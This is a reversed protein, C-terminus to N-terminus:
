HGIILQEWAKLYNHLAYRTQYLRLGNRAFNIRTEPTKLAYVAQVVEAASCSNLFVATGQDLTTPIEGARSAIISIGSALAELLVIPQAEVKYSSPFVLIQAQRLADLKEAGGIGRVWKVHVTPSLNIEAIKEVVWKEADEESHFRVPFTDRIFGGALLADVRLDGRKAIIALAELYEPYGKSELLNSLFLLNLNAGQHKQDLTEIPIVELESTNDVIQVVSKVGLAVLRHKQVPGLVTVVNGLNCMRVFLRAKLSNPSWFTFFNGHLAILRRSRPKVTLALILAIGDRVIAATSQGANIYLVEISRMELVIRLWAGFLRVGFNPLEWVRGSWAPLPISVKEFRAPLLKLLLKTALFQGSFGVPKAYIFCVKM